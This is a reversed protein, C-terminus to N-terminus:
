RWTPTKSKNDVPPAFSTNGRRWAYLVKGLPVVELCSTTHALLSSMYAAAVLKRSGDTNHESVVAGVGQWVTADTTPRPMEAVSRTLACICFRCRRTARAAPRGWATCASPCPFFAMDCFFCCCPLLAPLRTCLVFRFFHLHGQNSTMNNNNVHSDQAM